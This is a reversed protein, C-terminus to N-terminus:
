CRMNKNKIVAESYQALGQGYYVIAKFDYQTGPTFFVNRTYDDQSYTEKINGSVSYTAQALERYSGLTSAKYIYSIRIQGTGSTEVVVSPKVMCTTDIGVLSGGGKAVSLALNSVSIVTSVSAESTGPTASQPTASPAPSVSSPTSSSGGPGSNVTTGSPKSDKPSEVNSVVGGATSSTEGVAEKVVVTSNDSLVLKTKSDTILPNTITIDQAAYLSFLRIGVLTVLVGIFIVTSLSAVTYRNFINRLRNM